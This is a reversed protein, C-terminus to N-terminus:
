KRSLLWLLPRFVLVAPAGSSGSSVGTDLAKRLAPALGSAIQMVEKQGLDSVVFGFYGKSEFGAVGMGELRTQYLTTGGAVKAALLRGAPLSEGERKTLIVSLITGQGRAIFHVYKRPSGPVTCIHAELVQFGPLRAEVIQLLGEYAPGLKARLRDPPNAVDPYNHGRIACHLHDSVGLLLISSVLRRGRQVRLWQQGIAGALIVLMLAALAVAWSSPRSRRFYGPQVSRLRERVAESLGVPPEQAAVAKRLAERVRTRSELARSCSECTELHKLVEGTTEVLLENSLYADLQGRIQECHKSNFDLVNM